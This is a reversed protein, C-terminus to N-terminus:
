PPASAIVTDSNTRLLESVAPMVRTAHGKQHRQPLRVTKRLYYYKIPREIKELGALAAVDSRQKLGFVHEKPNTDCKEM